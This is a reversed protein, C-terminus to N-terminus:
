HLKLAHGVWRFEAPTIVGDKLAQLGYQVGVNDWPNRGFGTADTGYINVLDGAHTWDVGAAGQALKDLDSVNTYTPDLVLPTLGFRVCSLHMALPLSATPSTGPNLDTAVAIPLGHDRLLDVSRFLM